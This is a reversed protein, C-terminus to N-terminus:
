RYYVLMFFIGFAFSFFVLIPVWFWGQPKDVWIGVMWLCVLM